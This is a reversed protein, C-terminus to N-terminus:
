SHPKVLCFHPYVRVHMYIYTHTYIGCIKLNYTHIWHPNLARGDRWPRFIGRVRFPNQAWRCRFYHLCSGECLSGGGCECDEGPTLITFSLQSVFFSESPYVVNTCICTHTHSIYIYSIYSVCSVYICIYMYVYICIYIFVYICIYMYVYICIYMCLYM